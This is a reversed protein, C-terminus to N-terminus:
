KHGGHQGNRVPTNNIPGFPQQNLIHTQSDNQMNSKNDSGQLSSSNATFSKQLDLMIQKRTEKNMKRLEIKLKNMAVRRDNSSSNKIQKILTQISQTQDTKEKADIQVILLFFSLILIIFKHM